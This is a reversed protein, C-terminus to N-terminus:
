EKLGGEVQLLLRKHKILDNIITLKNKYFVVDNNIREVKAELKDLHPKMWAEKMAITPRSEGLEKKFDTELLLTDKRDKLEIEAFKLDNQLRQLKEFLLVMKEFILQELNLNFISYDGQAKLHEAIMYDPIKTEETEKVNETEDIIIEEVVIKEDAM